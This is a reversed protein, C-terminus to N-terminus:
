ELVALVADYNTDADLGDVSYIVLQGARWEWTIQNGSTVMGTTTGGRMARLLIVGSPASRIGPVSYTTPLTQTSITTELVGAFQERMRVGRDLVQRLSRFSEDIVQRAMDYTEPMIDFRIRTM